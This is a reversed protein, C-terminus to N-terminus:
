HVVITGDMNHHVVCEYHYIGPKTFTVLYTQPGASAPAGRPNLVGSNIYGHGHNAGDYQVTGSGPPESPFAGLPSLLLQKGHPAVFDKEIHLRLPAPGFTVTHIDTEDGNRFTVTDGAKVVLKNPFFSAIEAGTANHGVGVLVTLKSAPKATNLQKVDVLTRQLQNKGLQEEAAASPASASAPLVRVVGRMGPHVACEYQYTGPQTFTLLYPAPPTKPTSAFIRMLGSSRVQSPSSITGGGQPLISLPSVGLVPAAGGWWLPQGGGDKFPPQKGGLPVVFPYPRKPGPFTASHFGRFQWTVTDGVHVTVVKPYFFLADAQRSVGPPPPGQINPGAFVTVGGAHGAAFAASPLLAALLFVGASWAFRKRNSM